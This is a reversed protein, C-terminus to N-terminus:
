GGILTRLEDTPIYKDGAQTLLGKNGLTRIARKGSSEAVGKAVGEKWWETYGLGVDGFETLVRGMEQEKPTMRQRATVGGTTADWVHNPNHQLYLSTRGAYHGDLEIENKVFTMKPFMRGNRVKTCELTATDKEIGSSAIMETDWAGLLATSGRGRNTNRAVHHIVLVSAGTDRVISKLGNLFLQMDRSSNEDLDLANANLTDIVVLGPNETLRKVTRRLMAVSKREHVPVPENIFYTQGLTSVGTAQKWAAVRLKMGWPDDPTIYVVPRQKTAHSRWERGLGICLAIDLAMFSKCSGSAGILGNLTGQVMIGDILWAPPEQQMMADASILMYEDSENEAGPREARVKITSANTSPARTGTHGNSRVKTPKGDKEEHQQGVRTPRETLDAQIQTMASNGGIEKGYPWM